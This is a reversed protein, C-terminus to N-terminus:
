TRGILWLAARTWWMMGFCLPILLRVLLWRSGGFEGASVVVLSCINELNWVGMASSV